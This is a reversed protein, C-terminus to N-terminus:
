PPTKRPTGTSGYESEIMSILEFYFMYELADPVDEENVLHWRRLQLRNDIIRVQRRVRNDLLHLNEFLVPRIHQVYLDPDWGSGKGPTLIPQQGNINLVENYAHFKAAVAAEVSTQNTLKWQYRSTIVNGLIGVSAGIVGAAGSITPTLWDM